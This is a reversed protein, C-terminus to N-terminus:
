DPQPFRLRRHYDDDGPDRTYFNIVYFIEDVRQRSNSQKGNLVVAGGTKHKAGFLLEALEAGNVWASASCSAAAPSGQKRMRGEPRLERKKSM